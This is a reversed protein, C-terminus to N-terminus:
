EFYPLPSGPDYGPESLHSFRRVFYAQYEAQWPTVAPDEDASLARAGQAAQELRITRGNVSRSM